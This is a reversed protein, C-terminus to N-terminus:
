HHKKFLNSKMSLAQYDHRIVTTIKIVCELTLEKGFEILQAETLCCHHLIPDCQITLQNSHPTFVTSILMLQPRPLAFLGSFPTECNRCYGKMIHSKFFSQQESNMEIVDCPITIELELTKSFKSSRSEGSDLNQAPRTLSPRFLMIGQCYCITVQM